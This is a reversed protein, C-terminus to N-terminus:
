RAFLSNANSKKIHLFITGNRVAECLSYCIDLTAVLGFRIRARLNFRRILRKGSSFEILQVGIPSCQVVQGDTLNVEEIIRQQSLREFALM